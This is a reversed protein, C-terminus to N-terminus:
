NNTLCVLPIKLFYHNSLRSGWIRWETPSLCPWPVNASLLCELYNQNKKKKWPLPPRVQSVVRCNTSLFPFYWCSIQNPPEGRSLLFCWTSKRKKKKKKKKFTFYGKLSLIQPRSIKNLQYSSHPIQSLYSKYNSHM